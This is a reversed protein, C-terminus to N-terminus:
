FCTPAVMALSGAGNKITAVPHYSLGPLRSGLQQQLLQVQPGALQYLVGGLAPPWLYPLHDGAAPPARSNPGLEAFFFPWFEKQFPQCVGTPLQPPLRVPPPPIFSSMWVQQELAAGRQRYEALEATCRQLEAHGAAKEQAHHQQVAHVRDQLQQLHAAQPLPFPRPPRGLRDSLPAHTTRGVRCFSKQIILKPISRM